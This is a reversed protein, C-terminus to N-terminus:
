NHLNYWEESLVVRVHRTEKFYTFDTIMQKINVSVLGDLMEQIDEPGVPDNMNEETIKPLTTEKILCVYNWKKISAIVKSVSINLLPENISLLLKNINVSNNNSNNCTCEGMIYLLVALDFTDPLTNTYIAPVCWCYKLTGKYDFDFIGKYKGYSITHHELERNKDFCLARRTFATRLAVTNNETNM